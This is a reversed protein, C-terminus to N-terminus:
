GRRRPSSPTPPNGFREVLFDVFTRVKPHLFKRTPWVANVTIEVTDWGPLLQQLRGSALHPEVVFRLEYVVGLGDLAANVLARGNDSRMSGAVPVAV